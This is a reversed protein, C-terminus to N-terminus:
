YPQTYTFLFIINHGIFNLANTTQIKKKTIKQSSYNFVYYIIFGQWVKYFPLVRSLALFLFLPWLGFDLCALVHTILNPLNTLVKSSWQFHLFPVM